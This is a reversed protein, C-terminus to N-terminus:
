QFCSAGIVKIKNNDTYGSWTLKTGSLTFTFTWSDGEAKTYTLPKASADWAWASGEGCVATYTNGEIIDEASATVAFVCSIIM